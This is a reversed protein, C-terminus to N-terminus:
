VLLPAYLWAGVWLRWGPGQAAPSAVSPIWPFHCQAMAPSGPLESMLQRHPGHTGVCGREPGRPLPPSPLGVGQTKTSTTAVLTGPRTECSAVEGLGLSLGTGISGADSGASGGSCCQASGGSEERRQEPEWWTGCPAACPPSHHSQGSSCHHCHQGRSLSWWCQASSLSATHCLGHDAPNGSQCYQPNLSPPAPSHCPERDDEPRPCRPVVQSRSLLRM